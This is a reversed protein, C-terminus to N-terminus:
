VVKWHHAQEVFGPCFCDQVPKKIFLLKGVVIHNSYRCHNQQHQFKWEQNLILAIELIHLCLVRQWLLKQRPLRLWSLSSKTRIRMKRGHCPFMLFNTLLLTGLLVMSNFDTFFGASLMFICTISFSVFAHM